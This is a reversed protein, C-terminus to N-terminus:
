IYFVNQSKKFCGCCGRTGITAMPLQWCQVSATVPVVFKLSQHIKVDAVVNMVEHVVFKSQCSVTNARVYSSFETEFIQTPLLVIHCFMMTFKLIFNNQTDLKRLNKCDIPDRWQRILVLMDFSVQCYTRSVQYGGGGAYQFVFLNVSTFIQLTNFSTFIQM